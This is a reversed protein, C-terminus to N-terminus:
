SENLAILKDISTEADEGSGYAFCTQVMESLCLHRSHKLGPPLSRKERDVGETQM